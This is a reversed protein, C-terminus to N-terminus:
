LVIRKKLQDQSLTRIEKWCYFVAIDGDREEIRVYERAIGRGCLIRYSRFAIDGGDSVRRTTADAPYGVEPLTHPRARTSPTWRTVPPQDGM